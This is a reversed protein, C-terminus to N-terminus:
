NISDLVLSSIPVSPSGLFLMIELSEREISETEMEIETDSDSESTYGRTFISLSPHQEPITVTTTILNIESNPLSCVLQAYPEGKNWAAVAPRLLEDFTIKVSRFLM